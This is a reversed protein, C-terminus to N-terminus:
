GLRAGPGPGDADVVVLLAIRVELGAAGTEDSRVPDDRSSMADKMVELREVEVDLHAAPAVVYLVGRELPVGVDGGDVVVGLVIRDSGTVVDGEHTELAGDGVGEVRVDVGDAEGAGSSRQGCGAGGADHSSPAVDVFLAVDGGYEPLGDDADDVGGEAVGGGVVVAGDVGGHEAGSVLGSEDVGAGSIGASGQDTLVGRRPLPDQGAHGRPADSARFRLVGSNVGSYRGEDLPDGVGDVHVVLGNEM